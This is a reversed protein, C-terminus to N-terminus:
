INSGGLKNIVKEIVDFRKAWTHDRLFDDIVRVDPTPGIALDLNRVFEDPTKSPYVFPMEEIEPIPTAVVPKGGALYEYTKIPNTSRILDNIVFPIITVDFHHLYQPLVSYDKHGLFHVNKLDKLQKFIDESFGGILCFEFHPRQIASLRLLGADFWERIVGFFGVRPRGEPLDGPKECHNRATSFHATDAANPCLFSNKNYELAKEYLSRATATVIDAHTLLYPETTKFYPPTDHYASWDDILDYVATYGLRKLISIQFVLPFPQEFFLVNPGEQTRFAKLKRRTFLDILKKSLFTRRNQSEYPRYVWKRMPTLKEGQASPTRQLLEGRLIKKLIGFFPHSLPHWVELNDKQYVPRTNPNLYLVRHGRRLAEKVLQHPRSYLYSDWDIWPIFCFNMPHGSPLSKKTALIKWFDEGFNRILM